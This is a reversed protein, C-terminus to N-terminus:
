TAIALGLDGFSWKENHSLKPHPLHTTDTGEGVNETIVDTTTDVVFVDDGTGGILTDIGTGGNFIDNGAGGKLINNATNGTIVNNGANGTGNIAATGTLTLNEINPLTALTLTVTSEITDTGEGVNETIVDTTTDVVFVD